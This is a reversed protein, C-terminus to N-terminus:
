SIIEHFINYVSEAALDVLIFSLRYLRQENRAAMLGADLSLYGVGDDDICAGDRGLCPALRTLGDVTQALFVGASDGGHEAAIRLQAGIGHLLETRIYNVARGVSHLKNVSNFFGHRGALALFREIFRKFAANKFLQRCSCHGAVRPRKQFNLVSAHIEAGVAYNGVRAASHAAQGHLRRHALRGLKVFFAIALKDYGADFDRGVAYIKGSLGAKGVDHARYRVGRRMHTQAQPRDLRADYGLIEAFLDGCAAAHAPM